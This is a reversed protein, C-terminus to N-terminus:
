QDLLIIVTCKSQIWLETKTRNTAHMVELTVHGDELKLEKPYSQMWKFAETVLTLPCFTITTLMFDICMKTKTNLRSFYQTTIKLESVHKILNDM